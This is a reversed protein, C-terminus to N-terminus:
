REERDSTDSTDSTNSTDGRTTSQRARRRFLRGQGTRQFKLLDAITVGAVFFGLLLGLLMFLPRTGVRNDLWLGALFFIGFPIAIGFGLGWVMGLARITSRDM